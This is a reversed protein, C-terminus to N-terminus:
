SSSSGRDVTLWTPPPWFMALYEPFLELPGSSHDALNFLGVKGNKLEWLEDNDNDEECREKNLLHEIDTIEDVYVICNGHCGKSYQASFSFSCDTSVFFVQDGLDNVEVWDYKNQQHVGCCPIRKYVRFKVPVHDDGTEKVFGDIKRYYYVQDGCIDFDRVVLYLHGCSEVFYRECEPAMPDLPSRIEELYFTNEDRVSIVGYLDVIFFKGNFYAIDRYKINSDFKYCMNGRDDATLRCLNGRSIAVASNSSVFDSALKIKRILPNNDNVAYDPDKRQRISFAQVTEEVNFSLHNLERPFSAPMNKIPHRSFPSLVCFKNQQKTEEVKIFWCNQDSPAEFGPPRIRYVNMQSILFSPIPKNTPYNIRFHLQKPFTPSTPPLPVSARWSSCVARFRLVHLRSDLHKAISSILDRPLESWCSRQRYSAM